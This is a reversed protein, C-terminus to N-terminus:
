RRHPVEHRGKRIGEVGRGRVRGWCSRLQESKRPHREVLMERRRLSMLSERQRSPDVSMALPQPVLTNRTQLENLRHQDELRGDLEVSQCDLFACNILM